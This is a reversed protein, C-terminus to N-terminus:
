GTHTGCPVWACRICGRAWYPGPPPRPSPTPASCRRPNRRDSHARATAAPGSAGTRQSERTNQTRSVTRSKHIIITSHRTHPSHVSRVQTSSRYLRFQYILAEIPMKLNGEASRDLSEGCRVLKPIGLPTGRRRATSASSTHTTRTTSTTSPPPPPPPPPPTHSALM